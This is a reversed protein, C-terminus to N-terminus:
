ITTPGGSKSEGELVLVRYCSSIEGVPTDGGAALRARISVRTGALRAGRRKLEDVTLSKTTATCRTLRRAPPACRTRASSGCDVPRWAVQPPPASREIRPRAPPINVDWSGDDSACRIQGEDTLWCDFSEGFGISLGRPQGLYRPKKVGWCEGGGESDFVCTR